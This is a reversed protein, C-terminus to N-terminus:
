GLWNVQGGLADTMTINRDISVGAVIDPKVSIHQVMQYGRHPIDPVHSGSRWYHKTTLKFFLDEGSLISNAGVYIGTQYKAASVEAFWANCYEIVDNDDVGNKIGELDLWLILGEPLGVASANAAAGRGFQKGLETDPVWHAKSVHQVAMLGLGSGLIAKAEANSLDGGAEPALRSLYRVCFDFGKQRMAKASTATLVTNCDFGHAGSPAQVVSGNLTAM